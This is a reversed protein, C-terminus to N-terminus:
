GKSRIPNHLYLRGPGPVLSVPDWVTLEERTAAGRYSLHYLLADKLLGQQNPAVRRVHTQIGDAVYPPQYSFLYIRATGDPSWCQNSNLACIPFHLLLFVRRKDSSGNTSGGLSRELPPPFQTVRDVVRHHRQQSEFGYWFWRSLRIHRVNLCLESRLM